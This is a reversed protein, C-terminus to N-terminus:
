AMCSSRRPMTGGGQGGQNKLPPANSDVIHTLKGNIYKDPHAKREVNERSEKAFMTSRAHASKMLTAGSATERVLPIWPAMMRRDSKKIENASCMKSLINLLGMKPMGIAAAIESATAPEARDHLYDLVLQRKEAASEYRALDIPDKM